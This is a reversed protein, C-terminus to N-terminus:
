IKRGNCRKGEAMGYCPLLAAMPFGKPVRVVIVGIFNVRDAEDVERWNRDTVGHADAFGDMLLLASNRRRQEPTTADVM